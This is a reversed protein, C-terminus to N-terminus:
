EEREGEGARSTSGQRDVLACAEARGGQLRQHRGGGLWCVQIAVADIDELRQAAARRDTVLQELWLGM